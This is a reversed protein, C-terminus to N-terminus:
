NIGVRPIPLLEPPKKLEIEKQIQQEIKNPAAEIDYLTKKSKENSISQYINIKDISHISEHGGIIANGARQHLNLSLTVQVLAM